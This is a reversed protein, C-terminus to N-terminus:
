AVEAVLLQEVKDLPHNTLTKPVEAIVCDAVEKHMEARLTGLVKPAAVLVLRNFEGRHAQRYLIGSVEHAFREKEFSHWDTEGVASRQVSPGDNFRGPSDTGHERTPPNEQAEIRVVNFDPFDEDGDNVLFLAKEGDAILIWDGTRIRTM